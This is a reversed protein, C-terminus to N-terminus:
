AFVVALYGRGEVYLWGKGESTYIHGSPLSADNSLSGEHARLLAGCRDCPTNPSM